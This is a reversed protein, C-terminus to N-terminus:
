RAAAPRDICFMNATGEALLVGTDSRIEVHVVTITRGRSVTRAEALLVGETVNHIFNISANQTVYDRGDARACFGAANDLLSFLLGGHVHGSPNCSAGTIVHRVLSSDDGLAVLELGNYEAFPNKIDPLASM